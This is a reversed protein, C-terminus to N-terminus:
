LDVVRIAGFLQEVLKIGEGHCLERVIVFGGEMKAVNCKLKLRLQRFLFPQLSYNMCPWHELGVM